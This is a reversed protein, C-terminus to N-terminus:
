SRKQPYQQGKLCENFIKRDFKIHMSEVLDEQFFVATHKFIPISCHLLFIIIGCGDGQKGGNVGSVNVLM